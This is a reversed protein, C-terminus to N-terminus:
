KLRAKLLLSVAELRTAFETREALTIVGELLAADLKQIANKIDGIAGENDPPRKALRASASEVKDLVQEVRDARRTGPKAEVIERLDGAIEELQAEPTLPLLDSASDIASTVPLAPPVVPPPAPPPAPPSPSTRPPPPPTARTSSGPGPAEPKPEEKAPKAETEPADSPREGPGAKSHDAGIPMAKKETSPGAHAPAHGAHGVENREAAPSGSKAPKVGATRARAAPRLKREIPLRRSRESRPAASDRKPATSEPATAGAPIRGTALEEPSLRITGERAIQKTETVVAEFGPVRVAVAHTQEALGVAVRYVVAPLPVALGSAAFMPVPIAVMIGM